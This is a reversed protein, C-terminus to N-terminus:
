GITTNGLAVSINVSDKRQTLRSTTPTAAAGILPPAEALV